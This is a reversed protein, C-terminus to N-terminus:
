KAKAFESFLIRKQVADTAWAAFAIKRKTSFRRLRHSNTCEILNNNNSRLIKMEVAQFRKKKTANIQQSELLTFTTALLKFTDSQQSIWEIKRNTQNFFNHTYTNKHTIIYADLYDSEIVLLDSNASGTFRLSLLAGSKRDVHIMTTCLYVGFLEHRPNWM